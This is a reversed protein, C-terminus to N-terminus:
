TERVIHKPVALIGFKTYVFVEKDKNFGRWLPNDLVHQPVYQLELPRVFTGAPLTKTDHRDYSFMFDASLCFNPTRPSHTM